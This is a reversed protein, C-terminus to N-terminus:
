GSSCAGVGDEDDNSWTGQVAFTGTSLTIDTLAGPGVTVWACKDANEDHNADQWATTAPNAGDPDTITELYEHGAVETVGDLTGAGGANVTGQGCGHGANIVYPLDTFAIGATTGPYSQPNTTDHWACYAHQNFEASNADAPTAIVYSAQRDPTGSKNFHRVAREAERAIDINALNDHIPSTDDYWVGRLQHTPNTIHLQKGHVTEYYQTTVQQWASGGVGTFFRILTPEVRDPDRGHWGWFVLYVRPTLLVRGGFYAMNVPLPEGAMPVPADIPAAIPPPQVPGASAVPANVHALAPLCAVTAIVSGIVARM